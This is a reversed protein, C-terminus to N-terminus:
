FLGQRISMTSLGLWATGETTASNTFLWYVTLYIIDDISGGFLGSSITVHWDEGNVCLM